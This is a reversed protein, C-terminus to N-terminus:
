PISFLILNGNSQVSEPQIGLWELCTPYASIMFDHHVWLSYNKEDYIYIEISSFDQEIKGTLLIQDDKKITYDEGKDFSVDEWFGKGLHDSEFEGHFSEQVLVPLNSEDDYNELDLDGKTM